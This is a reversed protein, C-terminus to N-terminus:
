PLKRAMVLALFFCLAGIMILACVGISVVQWLVKALHKM